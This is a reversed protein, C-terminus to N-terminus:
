LLSKNQGPSHGGDFNNNKGLGATLDSITGFTELEPTVWPRRARPTEAPEQTVVTQEKDQSM